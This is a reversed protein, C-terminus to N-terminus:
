SGMKDNLRVILLFSELSLILLVKCRAAGSLKAPLTRAWRILSPMSWIVAARMMPILGVVRLKQSRPHFSGSSAWKRNISSNRCSVSGVAIRGFTFRLFSEHEYGLPRPTGDLRHKTRVCLRSLADVLLEYDRGRVSRNIFILLDKAVIKVYPSPTEDANMKAVLQNICYILIGKGYITALGKISPIVEVWKEGNQYRRPITEPNKSLSFFPHEMSAMDDKLVADAV